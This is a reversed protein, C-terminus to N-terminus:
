LGARGSRLEEYTSDYFWFGSDKGELAPPIDVSKNEEILATPEAGLGFPDTQAAEEGGQM